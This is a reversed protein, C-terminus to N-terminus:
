ARLEGGHAAAVAAIVAQRADAVEADTLTRETSRFRLRYALSRRGDGMGRYVDFLRVSEALEGAAATVTAAVAAAPERDPVVFALDVDSAPYRSIPAAVAARRPQALLHPLDLTLWAVRGTIGYAASVDPDVEGAAGLVTDDGAVVHASRGPHLGHVEAAHLGVGVLRLADALVAWLRAAYRGDVGAGVAIAALTEVEDPTVQDGAPPTFVRGIEFLRVEPEQRDANFRVAKLLGPLLSTRLISEARDLPNEVEVAHGPLGARELDGPALFTTTWAESLGAGALIDRVARRQKQYQTLGGTNRAGSPLTRAIRRYGHHRAVEEIVDVERDSDPRWSPVTVSAVGDGAPHTTFGIPDLLSAIEEDGLDTGLLRNVRATRLLVTPPTPVESDSRADNTSGRRLSPSGAGTLLAAFREVARDAGEPDVGREFRHRADSFLKLRTGTRAIAMPSFYAAEFLISTTSASIESDAGGMVGAIGVPVSTADCIVCDEGSLEREVGDLTTIREGARARRVEIGGGGLRELDYAHNPQGMDLMVYNSVDVVSNIPRMGALTLRRAIWAPSTGVVVGTMVTGTFRPCLDASLVSVSAFPLTGDVAPAAHEPYAFPVRLAAALDRAIGAMCLADPRNATIDLDFVVDPHLDLAETLPTGPAALEAPLILLGDVGPVEPLGVEAPSCLMGNSWEGMMKRRGIEMGGPLVTGLTALPVLDGVAMNWAGCAIQLAEGDGRDVDVLRIRDAKPHPRIDLIRVVEVGDLGEGVREVGEVVLGLESFTSTLQDVPATFPAFDCLWSLPARM